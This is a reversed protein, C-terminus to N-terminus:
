SVKQAYICISRRKAPAGKILHRHSKLVKHITFRKEILALIEEETFVYEAVGILPHIYSGAEKGPHDRLLRHANRDEDLLFTKFFYWGGPRLVRFVEDQFDEREKHTLVHSAMMDLVLAQSADPLPIALAISRVAFALPLEKGMDKAQTIAQSSIDYGIGRMAYTKAIHILNRGNGCGLDLMSMTPNLFSRGSHREIFRLFKELDESPNLSLALHSAKKYEYNWFGPGVKKKGRAMNQM